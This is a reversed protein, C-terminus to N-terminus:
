KKLLKYINDFVIALVFAIGMIIWVNNSQDILNALLISLLIVVFDKLCDKIFQRMDFKKM